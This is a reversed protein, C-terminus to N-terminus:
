TAVSLISSASKSCSTWVLVAKEIRLAHTLGTVEIFIMSIPEIKIRNLLNLGNKYNSLDFSFSSKM